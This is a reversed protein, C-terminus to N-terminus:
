AVGGRADPRVRGRLRAADADGSAGDRAAVGFQDAGGAVSAPHGAPRVGDVGRERRQGSELQVAPHPPQEGTSGAADADGSAGHPERPGDAAGGAGWRIGMARVFNLPPILLAAMAIAVTLGSFTISRGATLVTRRAAEASVARVTPARDPATRAAERTEPNVLEERFRNVMLLAYDIGAGLGLLTVVSQAFTSVETVLTLGYVGALAVTISLVGVLLPLGTAVLAGFVLLLVIATLPLATLESRKTDQEAFRTFDQAIPQGGTVQFRVAGTQARTLSRIRDLTADDNADIQVVTLTVKRDPSVTRVVGQADFPVVREVRPVARLRELFEDYRQRFRPDDVLYASRGVLLVASNEQEGFREALLNAVRTSDANAVEGPNASLAAPALRAFPLALLVVGIWVALVVLPHRTVFRALWHM